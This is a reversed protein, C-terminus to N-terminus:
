QTLTLGRGADADADCCGNILLEAGALLVRWSCGGGALLKRPAQSPAEGLPGRNALLLPLKLSNTYRPLKPPSYAGNSYSNGSTSLLIYFTLHLLM